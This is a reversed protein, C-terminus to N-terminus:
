EQHLAGEPAVTEVEPLIPEVQKLDVPKAAPEGVKLVPKATRQRKLQVPRVPRPAPAAVPVPTMGDLLSVIMRGTTLDVQQVVEAIAPVLLEGQEGRVVYVDNGGTTLIEVVRGLAEGGVSAVSLGIVQYHFYAGKPLPVAESVPVQVMKLRLKAAEEPTTVGGLKLFVDGGRVKAHELRYPTFEEGLFVKKLRSFRGPFDTLIHARVEGDVGFATQIEAIELYAPAESGAVMAVEAVVPAPAPAQGPAPKSSNSSRM